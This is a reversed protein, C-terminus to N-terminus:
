RWGRSVLTGVALRYSDSYKGGEFTSWQLGPKLAHFHGTKNSDISVPWAQVLIGIVKEETAVLIDGDKINDDTQSADYAEGTTEFEHIKPKAM